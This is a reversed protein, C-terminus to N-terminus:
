TALAPSVLWSTCSEGVPRSSARKGSAGNAPSLPEATGNSVGHLAVNRPVRTSTALWDAIWPSAECM